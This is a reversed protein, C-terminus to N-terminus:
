FLAYCFLVGGEGGCVCVCRNKITVALGLITGNPLEGLSGSVPVDAWTNAPTLRRFVQLDSGPILWGTAAMVRARLEAASEHAIVPLVVWAAGDWRWVTMFSVAPQRSRRATNYLTARATEAAKAAKCREGAEKRAPGMHGVSNVYQARGEATESRTFYVSCSTGDSVFTAGFFPMRHFYKRAFSEKVYMAIGQLHAVLPHAVVGIQRAHRDMFTKGIRFHGYRWRYGPLIPVLRPTIERSPRLVARRRGGTAVAVDDYDYDDDEDVIVDDDCAPEDADDDIEEEQGGASGADDDDGDDGHADGGDIVGDDTPSPEFQGEMRRRDDDALTRHIEEVRALAFCRFRLPVMPWQRLVTAIALKTVIGDHGDLAVPAHGGLFQQRWRDIFQGSLVSGLLAATEARLAPFPQARQTGKDYYGTHGMIARILATRVSRRVHAKRSFVPAYLGADQPHAQVHAFVARKYVAWGVRELVRQMGHVGGLGHMTRTLRDMTAAWEAGTDCDFDLRGLRPNRQMVVGIALHVLADCVNDAWPRGANAPARQFQLCRMFFEKWPGKKPDYVYAAVEDLIRRANARGLRHELCHVLVAYTAIETAVKSEINYTDVLRRIPGRFQNLFVTTLACKISYVAPRAKLEAETSLNEDGHGSGDDSGIQNDKTQKAVAKAAAEQALRAEKAQQKAQDRVLKAAAAAAAKVRVAEAKAAAVREREASNSASTARRSLQRRM